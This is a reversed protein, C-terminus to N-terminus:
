LRDASLFSPRPLPLQPEWTGRHAAGCPMRARRDRVRRHGGGQRRRPLHTGASGWLDTEAETLVGPDGAGVLPSGSSLGYEGAAPNALLPDGSINGSADQATVSGAERVSTTTFSSHTASVAVFSDIDYGSAEPQARVITNRLSVSNGTAPEALLADAPPRGEESSGTTANYVTDGTLTLPAAGGAEIVPWGDAKSPAGTLEEAGGSVLLSDAVAVTGASGHVRLAMGREARLTSTAVTATGEESVELASGDNIVGIGPPTNDITGAGQEVDAESNLANLSSESLSLSGHAVLVADTGSTAGEGTVAIDAATVSGGAVQLAGGIGSAAETIALHEVRGGGKMWLAPHEESSGEILTRGGGSSGAGIFQLELSTEIAEKFTGAGIVISDGSAAETVAHEITLCPTERTRCNNSGDSGSSQVYLTAASAAAAAATMLVVVPVLAAGVRALARRRAAARGAARLAGM